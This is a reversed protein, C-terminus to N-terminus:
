GHVSENHSIPHEASDGPLYLPGKQGCGSLLVAGLLLAPWCRKLMMLGKTFPQAVRAPTAM